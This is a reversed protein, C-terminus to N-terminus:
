AVCWACDARYPLVREDREAAFHCWDLLAERWMARGRAVRSAAEAPSVDLRDAIEDPTVGQFDAMLLAQRCAGPLCALFARIAAALEATAAGDDPETLARDDRDGIAEHVIQHLRSGLRDNGGRDGARAHMARYVDRLIDEAAGPDARSQIFRYLDGQFQRYLTELGESSPMADSVPEGEDCAKCDLAVGIFRSRGEETLVWPRNSM